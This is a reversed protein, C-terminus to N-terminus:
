RSGKGNSSKKAKPKKKEAKICKGHKKTFYKKCKVPKQTTTKPESPPELMRPPVGTLNGGGSVSVSGPAGFVPPMSPAGQCAEGACAAPVVPAPFGGDERADYVDVQTDVDTPVLPSATLFFADVGSADLGLADPSSANADILYVNGNAISGNSGESHYEYVNLTGAAADKTLAGMSYFLVRSGDASVALNTTADAPASGGSYGQHGIFSANQEANSGVSVRVLEEQVADYEFVQPLMSTNGLLDARSDFVLFRGEPTTQVPRRDEQSWDESDAQNRREFEQMFPEECEEKEEGSLAACPLEDAELETKTESSLTAIFTTRGHRFEADREFVYLNNAGPVPSRHEANEGALVTKAVFYVHSGDESVRAVGQVEPNSSEYGPSGSSVRVIKEGAPNDFDYEYLNTGTDGPFLEQNTLFFAKSGDKSAGQFIARSRITTQCQGCATSPPESIDVTQLQDLRAYLEDVEPATVALPCGSTEHSAPTFFVTEGNASVANYSDEGGPFGESGPQTGCNSILRNENNLGVLMPRSSGTGVYEYLSKKTTGPQTTDGPWLLEFGAVITFLVHSLNSSAGAFEVSLNEGGHNGAPPGSAGDPPILPGVRIFSGSPERLDLETANISGSSGIVEWMTRSADASIGFLHANPSLSTPPTVSSAVWGLSSRALEYVAGYAGNLPDSETGAFASLSSLIVRSGDSSVAKVNMNSAGDKYPPTVMEYARCDPLYGRFGPSSETTAPCEPENVEGAAFVPGSMWLYMLVTAVVAVSVSVIRNPM